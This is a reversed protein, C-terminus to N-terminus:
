QVVAVQHRHKIGVFRKIFTISLRSEWPVCTLKYCPCPVEVIFEPKTDEPCFRESDSLQEGGHPAPTFLPGEPSVTLARDKSLRRHASALARQLATTVRQNPAAASLM